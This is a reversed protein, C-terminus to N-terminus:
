RSQVRRKQGFGYAWLPTRIHAGSAADWLRITKDYSGSAITRSDPSFAVSHSRIRIGKLPAYARALIRMGCVSPTTRSMVRDGVVVLSQAAMPVSRWAISMTGTHGRLTRIHAGSEADWLRITNDPENGWGEVVVLSQVVMRVSRWAESWIRIGMQPHTHARGFGCGVSPHHQGWLAGGSAITRGDPSFAVSLSGHNRIGKLPAYPTCGFGCGM